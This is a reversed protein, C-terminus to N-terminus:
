GNDPTGGAKPSCATECVRCYREGSDYLRHSEEAHGCIKCLETIKGRMTPAGVLRPRMTLVADLLSQGGPVRTPSRSLSCLVLDDDGLRDSGLERSDGVDV